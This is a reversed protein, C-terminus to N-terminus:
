TNKSSAFLIIQYTISYWPSSLYFPTAWICECNLHRHWRTIVIVRCRYCVIDRIVLMIQKLLTIEFLCKLLHSRCISVLLGHRWFLNFFKLGDYWRVLVVTLFKLFGDIGCQNFAIKNVAELLLHWNDVIEISWEDLSLFILYIFICWLNIIAGLLDM